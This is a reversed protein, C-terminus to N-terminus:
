GLLSSVNYRRVISGLGQDMQHIFPEISFDIIGIANVMALGLDLNALHVIGNQEKSTLGNMARTRWDRKTLLLRGVSSEEQGTLLHLHLLM